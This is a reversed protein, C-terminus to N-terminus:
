GTVPGAIGELKRLSFDSNRKPGDRTGVSRTPISRDVSRTGGSRMREGGGGVFVVRLTPLPM